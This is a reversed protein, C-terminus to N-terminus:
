VQAAVPPCLASKTLGPDNKHKLRCSMPLVDALCRCSMAFALAPDYRSLARDNAAHPSTLAQVDAIVIFHSGGILRCAGLSLAPMPWFLMRFSKRKLATSNASRLGVISEAGLSALRATRGKMNM